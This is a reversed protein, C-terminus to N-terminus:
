KVPRDLLHHPVDCVVIDPRFLLAAKLRFAAQNHLLYEWWHEVVFELEGERGM